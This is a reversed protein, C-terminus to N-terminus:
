NYYHVLRYKIMGMPFMSYVTKHFDRRAAEEKDFVSKFLDSWSDTAVKPIVCFVVQHYHDVLGRLISNEPKTERPHVYYGNSIRECVEQIRAKYQNQKIAAVGSVDLVYKVVLSLSLCLPM